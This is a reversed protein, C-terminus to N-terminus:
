PFPPLPLASLGSRCCEGPLPQHWSSNGLHQGAAHEQSLPLVLLMDQSCATALCLGPRVVSIAKPPAAPLQRPKALGPAQSM